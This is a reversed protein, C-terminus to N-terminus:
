LVMVFYERCDDYLVNVHTCTRAYMICAIVCAFTCVYCACVCMYACICVDYACRIIIYLICRRCYCFINESVGEDNNNNGKQKKKKNSKLRKSSSHHYNITFVIRFSAKSSNKAAILM